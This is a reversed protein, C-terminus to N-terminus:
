ITMSFISSDFGSGFDSYRDANIPSTSSSSSNLVCVNFGRSLSSRERNIPSISLMSGSSTEGSCVDGCLQCCLFVFLLFSYWYFFQYWFFIVFIQVYKILFLCISEWFFSRLIMFDLHLFSKFSFRKFTVVQCWLFLDFLVFEYLFM